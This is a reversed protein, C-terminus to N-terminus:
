RTGSNWVANGAKPSQTSYLVLNGDGQMILSKGSRTGSSWVADGARPKQSKYLVLNGDGQLIHLKGNRTASSWTAKGSSNYIVLNGDGQLILRRNGTNIYENQLLKEGNKLRSLDNQVRVETTYNSGPLWSVGEVLLAFQENYAGTTSPSTTTYYMTTQQGPSIAAADQLVVRNSSVWTNDSLSSARNYPSATGIKVLSPSWTNSGTNKVVVKWYLKENPKTVPGRKVTREPNLYATASTVIANYPTSVNIPINFNTEPVWAVKELVMQFKPIYNKDENPAKLTFKFTAIATPPVSSESFKTTRASNLWSDDSFPSSQNYPSATGVFTNSKNWTKSGTNTIRITAYLTTGARVEPTGSVLQTRASDTYLYVGKVYGVYGANTSGFWDNYLRWFNRNGYASCSNGTGRLNNLAASNPQ